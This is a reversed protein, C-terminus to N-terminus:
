GEPAHELIGVVLMWGILYLSLSAGFVTLIQTLRHPLLAMDPQDPEVVRELYFQQRAAELQAQELAANAATLAQASFEQELQLSEFTSLKSSIANQSGVAKGNQTAIQASIAAIQQKISPIAPNDPTVREMVDLQAQLAAQQAVLKNSIDLVGAAQKNPDLIDERNRYQTLALRAKRVRDESRAVRREAEQIGTQQAKDNLRNVLQESLALLLNNINQADRADFARVDLIALNTQTDIRADIKKSYYRYLNEFRDESGVGPYRSFLDASGISFAGKVNYHKELDRLATRSRIYGIVENTQEQGSTLGTTQILSAISPLQASKESQNKVIFRSESVYQDSAILGFYIIALLTPLGVIALFWRNRRLFDYRM